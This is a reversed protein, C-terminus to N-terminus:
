ATERNYPEEVLLLVLTLRPALVSVSVVKIRISVNWVGKLLRKRNKRVIDDVLQESVQIEFGHQRDTQGGMVKAVRGGM